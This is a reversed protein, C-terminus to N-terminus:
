TSVQTTLIGVEEGDTSSSVLWITTSMLEVLFQRISWNAQPRHILGEDFHVLDLHMGITHSLQGGKMQVGHQRAFSVWYHVEFGHLSVSISTDRFWSFM